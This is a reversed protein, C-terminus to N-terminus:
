IRSLIKIELIGVGLKIKNGKETGRNQIKKKKQKQNIKKEFKKM